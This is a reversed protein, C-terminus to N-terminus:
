FRYNFNLRYDRGPEPLANSGARQSHSRYYKDFVNNVAFNVNFNDKGTPQWNLYVDHVGYGSRNVEEGAGRTSQMYAAKEAYRGRWGIELAPNEFQYSVGTMWQRGMPVAQTIADATTGNLKPKSEAVGARATLGEWHYAANLEYGKNKLTGGSETNYYTCGQGCAVSQFSQVDKINQYFLAGELSFNEYDWKFGVEANRSREAKLSDTVRVDRNSLMAEYLRPSRTAMNYSANFSLNENVDWIAGISPSINGGSRSTGSNGTFKFRDYRVGTTLTVPAFNWIGEAYVGIDEKEQNRFGRAQEAPKVEENRWNLGYKIKHGNDGFPTTFRLNAGQAEIASTAGNSKQKSDINFANADLAGLAGLNRGQYLVNTTDVTRHRYTPSDRETDFFFEERLARQGYQEERRHSLTIRNNENIDYAGKFLFSRNGLASHGIKRGTGDKYEKDKVWNGIVIGDLQGSRGYAAFGGNYGSNSHAGGTIRFGYNQGEELLDAADVTSAEIKGSTAGIGSSASGTGKEIGIVKVLAPDMMFRGQHHFIQSSTSTDDVVYDIQDQGMGRITVWQSTGNGGGFSVAVQDHLAEKLDTATDREMARWDEIPKATAITSQFVIPELAQVAPPSDTAQAHAIGALLAAPLAALTFGTLKHMDFTRSYHNCPLTIFLYINLIIKRMVIAIKVSM